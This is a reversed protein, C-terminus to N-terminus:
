EYDACLSCVAKIIKDQEMFPMNQLLANLSEWGEMPVYGSSESYHDFLIDLITEEM